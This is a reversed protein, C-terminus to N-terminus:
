IKFLVRRPVNLRNAGPRGARPHAKQAPLRQRLHATQAAVERVPVALAGGTKDAGKAVLPVLRFVAEALVNVNVVGAGADLPDVKLCKALVELLRRDVRGRCNHRLPQQQHSFIGKQLACM